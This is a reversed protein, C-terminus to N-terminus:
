GCGARSYRALPNVRSAFCYGWYGHHGSPTSDHPSRVQELGGGPSFECVSLIGGIRPRPYSVTDQGATGVGLTAISSRRESRVEV